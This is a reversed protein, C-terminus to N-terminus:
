IVKEEKYIKLLEDIQAGLEERINELEYEMDEVSYQKSKFMDCTAAYINFVIRRYFSEEHEAKNLVELKTFDQFFKIVTNQMEFINLLYQRIYDDSDDVLSYAQEALNDSFCYTEIQDYQKAVIRLMDYISRELFLNNTLTVIVKSFEYSSVFKNLSKIYDDLDQQLGGKVCTYDKIFGEDGPKAGTYCKVEELIYEEETRKKRRIYMEHLCAISAETLGLYDGMKRISVDESLVETRGLLYDTSTNLKNAINVLDKLGPERTGREYQSLAAQTYNLEKALDTQKMGMKERANKIREGLTNYEGM